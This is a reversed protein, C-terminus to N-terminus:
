EDSITVPVKGLIGSENWQGIDIHYRPDQDRLMFTNRKGPEMPANWELTCIKADKVDDILDITGQLGKFGKEEGCSCVHRLGGNHRIIMDEIDDTTLTDNQDGERYFEGSEIHANEIRIDYKMDDKIEIDLFQQGTTSAM